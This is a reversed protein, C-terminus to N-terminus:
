LESVVSETRILFKHLGSVKLFAVNFNILYFTITDENKNKNNLWFLFFQDQKPTLSVPAGLGGPENNVHVM